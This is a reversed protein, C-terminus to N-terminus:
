LFIFHRIGCSKGLTFYIYIRAHANDVAVVENGGRQVTVAKVLQFYNEVALDGGYIVAVRKGSVATVNKKHRRLIQVFVVASSRTLNILKLEVAVRDGVFQSHFYYIHFAAM